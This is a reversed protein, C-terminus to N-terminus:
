LYSRIMFHVCMPTENICLLYPRAFGKVLVGDVAMWGALGALAWGALWGAWGALTQILCRCCRANRSALGLLLQAVTCYAAPQICQASLRLCKKSKRRRDGGRRQPSHLYEYSLKLPYLGGTLPPAELSATPQGRWVCSASTSFLLARFRCIGALVMLM